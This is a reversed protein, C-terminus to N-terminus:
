VGISWMISGYELAFEVDAELMRFEIQVNRVISWWELLRLANTVFRSNATEGKGCQCLYQCEFMSQASMLLRFDVVRIM